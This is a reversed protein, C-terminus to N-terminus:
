KDAKKPEIKVTGPARRRQEAEYEEDERISEREADDYFQIIKVVKDESCRLRLTVKKGDASIELKKVMEIMDQPIYKDSMLDEKCVKRLDTLSEGASRAASEDKYKAVLEFELDDGAGYINLTFFEMDESIDGYKKFKGHLFDKFFKTPIGGEWAISLLARTDVARTLKTSRKQNPKTLVPNGRHGTSIQVTDPDILILSFNERNGRNTIVAPKGDINSTDSWYEKASDPRDFKKSYEASHKKDEDLKRVLFNKGGNFIKRAQGLKDRYLYCGSWGVRFHLDSNLFICAEGDVAKALDVDYNNKIGRSVEDYLITRKWARFFKREAIKSGNIYIILDTDEPAYRPLDSGFPDFYFFAAVVAGIVALLVVGGIILSLRKGFGKKVPTKEQAPCSENKIESEM